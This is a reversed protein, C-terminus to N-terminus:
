HWYLAVRTEAPLQALYAWIARNRPNDTVDDLTAFGLLQGATVTRLPDGYPTDQTNGYHTDKGGERSLYTGFQQPVVVGINEELQGIDAFLARRRECYLVCHSIAWGNDTEPHEFPLLTLDLGM